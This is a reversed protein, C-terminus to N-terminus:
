LGMKEWDEVNKRRVGSIGFISNIYQHVSLIAAKKVQKKIANIVTNGWYNTLTDPLMNLILKAM